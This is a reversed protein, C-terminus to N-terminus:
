RGHQELGRRTNPHYKDFMQRSKELSSQDCRRGAKRCLSAYEAQLALLRITETGCSTYTSYYRFRLAALQSSLRMHNRILGGLETQLLKLEDLRKKLDLPEYGSAVRKAAERVLDELVMNRGRIKKELEEVVEDDLHLTVKSHRGIRSLRIKM